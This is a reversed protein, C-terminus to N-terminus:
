FYGNDVNLVSGSAGDNESIYIISKILDDISVYDNIASRKLIKDLSTKKVKNALGKKFVGLSITYFFQNFNGYELSLSRAFFKLSSKTSSYLSIGRDGLLARSSSFYIYKTKKLMFKNVLINTIIVPLELNVRIINSIEKHSLKFFASSDTIGNMFLFLHETKKDFSNILNLLETHSYEEVKINKIKTDYSDSKKSSVSVIDFHDSLGACLDKALASSGGFVVLRKKM